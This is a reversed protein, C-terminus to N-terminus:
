RGAQQTPKRAMRNCSDVCQALAIEVEPLFDKAFRLLCKSRKEDSRCRTTFYMKYVSAHQRLAGRMTRRKGAFSDQERKREIGPQVVDLVVRIMQRGDRRKLVHQDLRGDGCGAMVAPVLSNEKRTSRFGFATAFM